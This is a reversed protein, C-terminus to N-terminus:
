NPQGSRPENRAGVRFDRRWLDALALDGRLSIDETGARNWAWCYLDSALGFVSLDADDAAVPRCGLSQPGVLLTWSSNADLPTLAISREGPLGSRDFRTASGTILEEIGDAAFAPEFPQVGFGVALEADVRHVATEHALRRAWFLKASEAPTITWVAARDPTARLQAVLEALGTDYAEFLEAEAPPDFRFDAPQGGGLISTAWRHVKTVHGLLRAVTWGPCSPVATTLPPQSASSRLLRGQRRLEDLYGGFDM